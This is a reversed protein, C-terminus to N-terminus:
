LKDYGHRRDRRRALESEYRLGLSDAHQKVWATLKTTGAPTAGEVYLLNAMLGEVEDRTVMVDRMFFGILQGLRHGLYPPVSLIPRPQGILRGITQVLKRYTFTEPGIANTITNDTQSGQTVALAALDDAHIPQLRYDGQGFVVFVPFRRLTWAINNILIGERGFLVAPRLIAYSIGSASLAQELKAKGSFYELPSAPDPNTISVHVIREVGAHSAAKFLILTNRIAEAYTFTKHNFRVWYTNYLVKVGRLTAALEAPAEFLFPHAAVQFGFPNERQPSNTLTIVRHGAALLRRAIYQGSFGFAGTVAHLETGM